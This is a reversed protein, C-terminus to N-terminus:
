RSLKHKESIDLQIINCLIPTFVRQFLPFRQMKFKIGSVAIRLIIKNEAYRRDVYLTNKIILYM